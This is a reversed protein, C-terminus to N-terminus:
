DKAGLSFFLFSFFDVLRENRHVVLSPKNRISLTQKLDCMEGDYAGPVVPMPPSPGKIKTQKQGGM